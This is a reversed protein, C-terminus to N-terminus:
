ATLLGRRPYNRKFRGCRAMEFVSGRYITQRTM